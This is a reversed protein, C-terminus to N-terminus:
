PGNVDAPKAIRMRELVLRQTHDVSLELPKLVERFNCVPHPKVPALGFLLNDPKVIHKAPEIFTCGSYLVGTQTEHPAHRRKAM